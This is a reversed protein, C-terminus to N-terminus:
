PHQMILEFELTTFFREAVLGDYYNGNGRM